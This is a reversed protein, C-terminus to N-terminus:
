ESGSHEAKAYMEWFSLLLVHLGVESIFISYFSPKTFRFYIIIGLTFNLDVWSGGGFDHLLLLLLIM